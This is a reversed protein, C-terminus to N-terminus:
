SWRGGDRRRPLILEAARWRLLEGAPRSAGNVAELYQVAVQRKLVWVPLLPPRASALPARGYDHCTSATCNM